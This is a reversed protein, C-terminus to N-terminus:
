WGGPFAPEVTLGLERGVREMEREVPEFTEPKDRATRYADLLGVASAAPEVREWIGPRYRLPDYMVHRTGADRIERLLPELTPETAGPLIPGVFAWTRIGADNLRRLTEIRRESPSAFPEFTRRMTDDLTTVTVGVEVDQLRRLLDLDRLVLSSKTQISVPFRARALQELCYRSVRYRREIAQYGDTVTGIGVVGRATRRLEKALVAPLNRKVDVFRGWARAERLVAPAYCYVCAIACGRYPNLAYDLGPLRTPSLATTCTVERVKM